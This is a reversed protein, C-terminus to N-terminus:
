DLTSMILCPSSVHKSGIFIPPKVCRWAIRSTIYSSILWPCPSMAAVFHNSLNSGFHAVFQPIGVVVCKPKGSILYGLCTIDYWWNRIFISYLSLLKRPILRKLQLVIFVGLCFPDPRKCMAVNSCMGTFCVHVLRILSGCFFLPDYVSCYNYIIM